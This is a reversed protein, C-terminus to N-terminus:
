PAKTLTITRGSVKVAYRDGEKLAEGVVRPLRLVRYRSGHSDFGAVLATPELKAKVAEIHKAVAAKKVTATKKSATTKKTTTM